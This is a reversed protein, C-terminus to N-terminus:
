FFDKSYDRSSFGSLVVGTPGNGCPWVWSAVGVLGCGHPWVWLDPRKVSNAAGGTFARDGVPRKLKQLAGEWVVGGVRPKEM